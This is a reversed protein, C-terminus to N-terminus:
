EDWVGTLDTRDLAIRGAWLRDPTPQGHIHDAQARLGQARLDRIRSSSVVQHAGCRVPDFIRVNFRQALVTTDGSQGAGFRFDAGVHLELPNVQALAELFADASRRRYADTFSAVVVYDPCLMGIRALKDELTSLQEAGAFFVKPPPDFTWVVSPVALAQARAVATRILAQHGRHVGDFAGITVVSRALTLHGEPHVATRIGDYETLM